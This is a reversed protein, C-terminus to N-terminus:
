SRHHIRHKIHAHGRRDIHLHATGIQMLDVSHCLIQCGLDATQRTYTFDVDRLVQVIGCQAHVHVSHMCGLQSQRLFVHYVVHDGGQVRVRHDGGIVPDIALTPVIVIKGDLVEFLSTWCDVIEGVECINRDM